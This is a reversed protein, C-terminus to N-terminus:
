LMCKVDANKPWLVADPLKILKLQCHIKSM